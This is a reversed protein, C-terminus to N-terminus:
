GNEMARQDPRFRSDTPPLRQALEPTLYNLQLAFHSFNFMMDSNKPKPRMEFIVEEDGSAIDRIVLSESFVGEISYRQEGSASKVIGSVRDPKGSWGREKWEIDCIAGSTHNFLQSKGFMEIYMKGILLNHAATKPISWSYDEYHGNALKLRMYERGQPAVTVCRGNFKATNALQSIHEYNNSECFYATVPPHHSVQEAVLRYKSTVLEFTEGLMSNFPKKSRDKAVSKQTCTFAAMLAM